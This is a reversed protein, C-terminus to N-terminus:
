WIMGDSNEASVAVRVDASKTWSRAFVAVDVGNAVSPFLWSMARLCSALINSEQM